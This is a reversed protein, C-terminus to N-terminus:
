HCTKMRQNALQTEKEEDSDFVSEDFEVDEKKNKHRKAVLVKYKKAINELRQINKLSYPIARRKITVPM